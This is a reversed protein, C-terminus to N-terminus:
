RDTGYGALCLYSQHGNSQCPPWATWECPLRPSYMVGLGWCLTIDRGRVAMAMSVNCHVQPFTHFEFAYNTHYQASINKLSLNYIYIKHHIVKKTRMQLGRTAYPLPLRICKTLTNVVSTNVPHKTKSRLSIHVNKM